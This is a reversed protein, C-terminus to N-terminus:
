IDLATSFIRPLQKLGQMFLESKIANIDVLWKRSNAYNLGRGAPFNLLNIGAM